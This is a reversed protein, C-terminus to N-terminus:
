RKVWDNIRSLRDESLKGRWCNRMAVSTAYGQSALVKKAETPIIAIKSKAQLAPKLRLNRPPHSYLIDAQAGIRSPPSFLHLHVVTPKGAEQLHMRGTSPQFVSSFRKWDRSSATFSAFDM